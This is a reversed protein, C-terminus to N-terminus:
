FSAIELVKQAAKSYFDEGLRQGTTCGLIDKEPIQSGDRQFTIMLFFIAELEQDKYFAPLKVQILVLYCVCIALNWQEVEGGGM